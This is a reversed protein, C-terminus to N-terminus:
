CQLDTQYMYKQYNYKFCVLLEVKVDEPNVTIVQPKYIIYIVFLDGVEKSRHYLLHM